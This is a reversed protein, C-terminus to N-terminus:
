KAEQKHPVNRRTSSCLSLHSFTCVETIRCTTSTVLRNREFGRLSYFQVSEASGPQQTESAFSMNKEYGERVPVSHHTWGGLSYRHLMNIFNQLLLFCVNGM